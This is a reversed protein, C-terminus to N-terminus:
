SILYNRLKNNDFINSKFSIIAIESLKHSLFAYIFHSIYYFMELTVKFNNKINCIMYSISLVIDNKTLAVVIRFIM